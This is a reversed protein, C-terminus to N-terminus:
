NECSKEDGLVFKFHSGKGIKSCAWIRGHHKDIIKKCISLGIGTGSIEEQRYLRKLPFFIYKLFREEIGLGNDKVGFIYQKKDNLGCTFEINVEPSRNFKLANSILNQYVNTILDPDCFVEPYSPKFTFNVSRVEKIAQIRGQLNVLAKDICPRIDMSMCEVDKGDIKCWELLDNVLHKSNEVSTFIAELSETASESKGAKINEIIEPLLGSITRLPDKLDHSAMYAFDKLNDNTVQLKNATEQLKKEYNKAKKEAVKRATINQKIAIYLKKGNITIPTITMEEFYLAGDKRRNLMEGRWPINQTLKKWMAEYFEPKHYGSQLLRPNKGKVEALTYGTLGTFASNVWLIDGKDDTLVIGNIVAKLIHTSIKPIDPIEYLDHM